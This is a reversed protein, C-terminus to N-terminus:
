FIIQPNYLNEAAPLSEWRTAVATGDACLLNSRMMLNRM